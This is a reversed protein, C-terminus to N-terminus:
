KSSLDIFLDVHNIYPKLLRDIRIDGTSVGLLEETSNTDQYTVKYDGWDIIKVNGPVPGGGCAAGCSAGSGSSLERLILLKLAKRVRAPTDAHGWTGVVQINNCGKPWKDLPACNCEGTGCCLDLGFGTNEYGTIASNDSLDTVSDVTVLRYPVKPNFQLFCRCNGDFTYTAEFECFRDNTFWDVIETAIDIAEQIDADTCADLDVYSCNLRMNRVGYVDWYECDSM